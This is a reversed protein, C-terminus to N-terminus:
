REDELMLGPIRLRRELYNFVASIVTVVVLYFLAVIAYSDIPNYFKSIIRKTQGMLDLVAILYLIGTNKIMSVAENSWNPLIMRIAQPIIIRIMAKAKPMGLSRAAELQKSGVSEIASRLYEIQFAASNLGLVIVACVNPELTIGIQPFGYYVMFLQILVPTCRFSESFGIIFGKIVKNGYVRLFSMPLGVIIGIALSIAALRLTLWLGKFMYPIAYSIFEQNM